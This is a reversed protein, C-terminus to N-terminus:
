LGNLSSQFSIPIYPSNYASVTVTKTHSSNKYTINQLTNTPLPSQFPLVSKHTQYKSMGAGIIQCSFPSTPKSVSWRSPLPVLISLAYSNSMFKLFYM